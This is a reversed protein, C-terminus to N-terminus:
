LRNSTRRRGGGPRDMSWMRESSEAKKSKQYIFLRVLVAGIIGILWDSAYLGPAANEFAPGIMQIMGVFKLPLSTGVALRYATGLNLFVWMFLLYPINPIVYKRIKDNTMLLRGQASM